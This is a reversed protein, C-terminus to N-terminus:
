KTAMAHLTQRSQHPCSQRAIMQNTTVNSWNQLSCCIHRISICLARCATNSTIYKLIIVLIITHLHNIPARDNTTLQLLKTTYRSFFLNAKDILKAVTAINYPIFILGSHTSNMNKMMLNISHLRKLLLSLNFILM